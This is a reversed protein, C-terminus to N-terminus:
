NLSFQMWADQDRGFIFYGPCIIEALIEADEALQKGITKLHEPHHILFVQNNKIAEIDSIESMSLMMPLEKFLDPVPKDSLVLLVSPNFGEASPDTQPIGGSLRILLDLYPNPTITVPNIEQIYHVKPRAEDPIFKLKHAIIELREIIDERSAKQIRHEAATQNQKEWLTLLERITQNEIEM